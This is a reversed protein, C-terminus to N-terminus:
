KACIGSLYFYELRSHSLWEDFSRETSRKRTLFFKRLRKRLYRDLDQFKKTSNGIKFYNRWGRIVPNLENVILALSKRLNRREVYSKLERRVRKMAKESPWIYPVMKGSRKSKRKRYHFGLFDFGDAGEM